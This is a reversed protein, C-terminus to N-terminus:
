RTGESTNSIPHGPPSTGAPELASEPPMVIWAVLYAVLGTGFSFLTVVVLLLRVLVVDVGAYRAVGSCVGAIWKDDTSRRLQKAPRTDYQTTNM